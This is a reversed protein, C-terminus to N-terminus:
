SCHSPNFKNGYITISNFHTIQLQVEDLELQAITDLDQVIAILRDIGAEARILYKKTLHPDEMAGDLLTSVYGQINFIPTKLEHAVDGIYEKRYKELAIM